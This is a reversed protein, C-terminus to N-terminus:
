RQAPDRRSRRSRLVRNEVDGSRRSPLVGHPRQTRPLPDPVLGDLGPGLDGTNVVFAIPVPLKAVRGAFERLLDERGIHTDSIHLFHFDESQEQRM